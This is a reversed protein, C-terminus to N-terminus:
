FIGGPLVVDGVLSCSPAEDPAWINQKPGCGDAAALASLVGLRVALVNVLDLAPVKLKPRLTSAAVGASSMVGEPTLM